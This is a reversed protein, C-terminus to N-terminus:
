NKFSHTRCTLTNFIPFAGKAGFLGTWSLQLFEHIKYLCGDTISPATDLVSSGQSFQTLKQFSCKRCSQHNLTSVLERPKLYALEASIFFWTYRECSLWTYQLCSCRACKQGTLISNPQTIFVKQLNHTKHLLYAKNAGFHGVWILQLFVLKQTLFCCCM